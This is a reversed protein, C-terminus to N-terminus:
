DTGGPRDGVAGREHMIRGNGRPQKWGDERFIMEEIEEKLADSTVGLVQTAIVQVARDYWENFRDQDMADFSVSGIIHITLTQEFLLKILHIAGGMLKAIREGGLWTDSVAKRAVEELQDIILQFHRPMRDDILVCRRTMSLGTAHKLEKLLADEDAWIDDTNHVCKHLLAFLKAHHKPNRPKRGTIKLKSGVPQKALWEDAMLDAPVLAQRGNIVVKEMLRANLDTM